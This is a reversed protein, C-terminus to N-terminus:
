AIADGNNTTQSPLQVLWKKNSKSNDESNGESNGEPNACPMVLSTGRGSGAGMPLLGLKLDNLTDALAAELESSLQADRRLWLKITFRPRYLLEESFLAGKRVGGTFRDVSNHHRIVTHEYDIDCDDIYLRGARSDEHNESALGFLATLEGPRQQWDDHGSEAMTEAWIEKHKRWHYAVRHAIMGKISSGCLVAKNKKLSAVNKKWEFRPESYTILAVANEPRNKGLLESGSGCRWNDLAQLPLEAILRLSSSKGPEPLRNESTVRAQTNLAQRLRAAASQGQSLDIEHQECAIVKIKGLGNRTSSGFAFAPDHWLSLLEQWEDKHLTANDGRGRDSWRLTISFRVGKPLLIQDFKGTERAVGRDNIAVRERHHPRQQSLLNLVADQEIEAIPTLPLVAQNKSNLVRGNSISLSSSQETTGLWKDRLALSKEKDSAACPASQIVHSWVGAIATAPIYPLGNVDRALQTDFGTERSGSNIAMPSRTEIVLQTVHITSM